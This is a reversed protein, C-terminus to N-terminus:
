FLQHKQKESKQKWAALKKFADKTVGFVEKFQEESLYMEKHAPDVDPPRNGSGQIASIDYSKEAPDAYGLSAADAPADAAEAAAQAAHAKRIVDPDSSRFDLYGVSAKKKLEKQHEKEELMVTEKRLLVRSKEQDWHMFHCTFIPPEHGAQVIIAASSPDRGDIEAQAQVYQKCIEKAEKREEANAELGVWLYVHQVTDLLMIDEDNLDEQTFYFIEEFDMAGSANSIQFLRPEYLPSLTSPDSMYEAKGGLLAWFADTEEGETVDIMEGDEKKEGPMVMAAQRAISMEQDSAGKGMWLYVGGSHMLVFADNSNLNPAECPVQVVHANEPGSGRVHYLRNAPVEHAGEPIPGHHHFGSDVGGHHIIMKGGFLVLFSEDEKGMVLRVETANGGFKEANLQHAMIASAGVEDVSSESGQWFYIIAKMRGRDDKWVQQVIYSDGDYFQGYLSEDIAEMAMNNVRWIKIEGGHSEPHANGHVEMFSARKMVVNKMDVKSKSMHAVHGRVEEGFKYPVRADFPQKFYSKFVTSESGEDMRVAHMSPNLSKATLYDNVHIMAGRKQSLPADKGVWMFLGTTKNGTDVLFVHDSVLDKRSLPAKAGEVQEWKDSEALKFLCVSSASAKEFAEDDDKGAAVPGEGGLEAWFPAADGGEALRIVPIKGEHDQEKIHDAVEGGKVKEWRNAEKGEWLYIGKATELIFVDGENLSARAKDVEDVRVSRKGKIRYLKSRCNVGEGAEVHTFGSDVGGALLRLGGRNKWLSTFRASEAGQCERYQVPVDGLHADLDVTKYAAIGKEDISSEEGLWFFLDYKQRMEITHLIIYSDGTCFQGYKDQPWAVVKKNEIRWVEVGKATGVNAGFEDGVDAVHGQCQHQESM